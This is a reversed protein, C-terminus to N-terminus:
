MEFTSGDPHHTSLHVRGAQGTQEGSFSELRKFCAQCHEHHVRFTCPFPHEEIQLYFVTIINLSM